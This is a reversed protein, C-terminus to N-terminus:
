EVTDSGEHNTQGWHKALVDALEQDTAGQRVRSKKRNGNNLNQKINQLRTSITTLSMTKILFEDTVEHCRDFTLRFDKITKETDAGPNKKQYINLLARIAANEKKPYVIEYEIGYADLYSEKYEQIIRGFFDKKVPVTSNKEVPEKDKKKVKSKKVKSKNVKITNREENTRIVNTNDKQNKAKEWRANISKRALMSKEEREQLRRDISESRYFGDEKYFLEFDNLVSNIREYETRLEFAIRECDDAPIMGNNEYAIEVLCWYVGVGIMGHKMQLNVMKRDIRARYDHSFYEKM